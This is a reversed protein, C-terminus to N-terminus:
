QRAGADDAHGAEALLDAMVSDAVLLGARTLRIHTATVAIRGAAGHVDLAERFLREADFGTRRRFDARDIGEILRLRLMAMEGAMAPGVLHEHEVVASRGQAIQRVYEDVDEVNRTREGDLYAAAAPGVGVYPEDNWYGLNHLCRAGPPAFNSIEYHEYGAAALSDIAQEYMATEVSEDCAQVAGAVLRDCLATGPEYTLAYCALHDPGLAVARRLSEAWSATTQGPVGFILDLNLHEFGTRRILEATRPIDDPGHIRGLTELEGAHFSQAGVSIRNV